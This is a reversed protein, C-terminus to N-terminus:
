LFYFRLLDSWYPNAKPREDGAKSLFLRSIRLYLILIHRTKLISPSCSEVFLSTRVQVRIEWIPM